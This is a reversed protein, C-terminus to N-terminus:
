RKSQQDIKASYREFSIETANYVVVTLLESVDEFDKRGEHSVFTVGSSSIFRAGIHAKLVYM